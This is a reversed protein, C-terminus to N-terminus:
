PSQGCGQRIAWRALTVQQRITEERGPWRWVLSAFVLAGVLAILSAFNVWRAVGFLAGGISSGGSAGSDRAVM